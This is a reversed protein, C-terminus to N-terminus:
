SYVVRGANKKLRRRRTGFLKGEDWLDREPAFKEATKVGLKLGKFGFHIRDADRLIRSEAATEWEVSVRRSCSTKARIAAPCIFRSIASSRTTEGSVTFVWTRYTRVLNPTAGLASIKASIWLTVNLYSISNSYDAYV